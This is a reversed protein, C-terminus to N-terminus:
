KRGVVLEVPRATASFKEVFPCMTPRQRYTAKLTYRGPTSFFVVMHDRLPAKNEAMRKKFVDLSTGFVLVSSRKLDPISKLDDLGRPDLAAASLSGPDLLANPIWLANLTTKKEKGPNLVQGDKRMEEDSVPEGPPGYYTRLERGSAIGGPTSAVFSLEWSMGMSAVSTQWSLATFEPYITVPKKTNNKLTVHITVDEMEREPWAAPAVIAQLEIDMANGKESAQAFSLNVFLCIGLGLYKACRM